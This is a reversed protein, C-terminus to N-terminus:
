TLQQRPQRADGLTGLPRVARKVLRVTRVDIDCREKLARKRYLRYSQDPADGQLWIEHMPEEWPESLQM